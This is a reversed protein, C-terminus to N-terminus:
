QDIKDIIKDFRWFRSFGPLIGFGPL